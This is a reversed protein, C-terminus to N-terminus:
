SLQSTHISRWRPKVGATSEAPLSTSASAELLPSSASVRTLPVDSWDYPFNYSLSLSSSNSNRTSVSGLTIVRFISFRSDIWSSASIFCITSFIPSISLCTAVYSTNARKLCPLKLAALVRRASNRPSMARRLDSEITVFPSSRRMIRCRDFDPSEDKCMRTAGDRPVRHEPDPHGVLHPRALARPSHSRQRPRTASCRSGIM